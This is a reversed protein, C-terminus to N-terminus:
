DIHVVDGVGYEYRDLMTRLILTHDAESVMPRGDDGVLWSVPTTQGLDAYFNGLPGAYQAVREASVAASNSRIEEYDTRFRHLDQPQYPPWSVPESAAFIRIYNEGDDSYEVEIRSTEVPLASWDYERGECPWQDPSLETVGGAVDFRRVRRVAVCREPASPAKVIGLQRCMLRGHTYLNTGRDFLLFGLQRRNRFAYWAGILGLGALGYQWM